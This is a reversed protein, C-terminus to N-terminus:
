CGEGLLVLVELYVYKKKINQENVVDSLTM